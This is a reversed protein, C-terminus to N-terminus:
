CTFKNTKHQDQIANDDVTDRKSLRQTRSLRGSQSDRHRESVSKLSIRLMNSLSLSLQNAVIVSVIEERRIVGVLASSGDLQSARGDLRSRLHLGHLDVAIGDGVTGEGVNRGIGQGVQKHVELASLREDSGGLDDAFDLDRMPTVNGDLIHGDPEVGAGLQLTSERTIGILHSINSRSSSQSRHVDSQRLTSSVNVVLVGDTVDRSRVPMLTAQENLRAVREESAPM